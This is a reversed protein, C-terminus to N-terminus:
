SAAGYTAHFDAEIEEVLERAPANGNSGALRAWATSEVVIWPVVTVYGRGTRDGFAGYRGYM